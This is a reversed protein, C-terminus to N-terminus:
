IKKQRIQIPSKKQLSSLKKTIKKQSSLACYNDWYTTIKELAKKKNETEKFLQYPTLKQENNENWKVKGEKILWFCTKLHSEDLSLCDNLHQVYLHLLNNGDIKKQFSIKQKKWITLIDLQHYKIAYEMPTIYSSNVCWPDWGKKTLDNVFFLNKNLVSYFLLDPATQPTEIAGRKLFLQAANNQNFRIALEFFSEELNVGTKIKQNIKDPNKDLYSLISNVRGLRLELIYRSFPSIQLNETESM